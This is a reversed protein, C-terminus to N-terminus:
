LIVLPKNQRTVTFILFRGIVISKHQIGLASWGIGLWVAVKYMYCVFYYIDVLQNLLQTSNTHIATLFSMPSSGRVAILLTKKKSLELHLLFLDYHM